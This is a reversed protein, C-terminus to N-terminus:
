SDRAGQAIVARRPSSRGSPPAGRKSRSWVRNPPKRPPSEIRIRDTTYAPFSVTRKILNNGTIGALTVWASGTGGQVSFDTIGIQTTMSDTPEVPAAYNDQATYVVVRDITKSGSFNIQVWDPYLDRTNDKWTGGYGASSYNIGLHENDITTSPSRGPLTSSASAM